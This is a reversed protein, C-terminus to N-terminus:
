SLLLSLPLVQPIFKRISSPTSAEIGGCHHSASTHVRRLQHIATTALLLTKIGRHELLLGLLGVLISAAHSIPHASHTHPMQRSFLHLRLKIRHARMLLLPHFRLHYSSRLTMLIGHLRHELPLPPLATHSSHTPLATHSSSSHTPTHSMILLLLRRQCLQESLLLLLLLLVLVLLILLGLLVLLWWLESVLLM